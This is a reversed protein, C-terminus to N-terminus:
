KHVVISGAGIPQASGNDYVVHEGFNHKEASVDSRPAGVFRLSVPRLPVCRSQCVSLGCTQEMSTLRAGSGGLAGAVPEIV